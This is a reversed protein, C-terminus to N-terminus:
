GTPPTSSAPARSAGAAPTPAASRSCARGPTSRRRPGRAAAQARPRGDVIREPAFPELYRPFFSTGVVNDFASSCAPRGGDPLAEDVKALVASNRVLPTIGGLRSGSVAVGLAWAVLLVAVASLVAGGVADVARIPQWTIRRPAPRRRVPLLAQGLSASLIVIFLAGLSM